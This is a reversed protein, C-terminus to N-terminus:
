EVGIKLTKNKIFGGVIEKVKERVLVSANGFSDKGKESIAVAMSLGSAQIITEEKTVKGCIAICPIGKKKCALAVASVIKGQITQADFSGEGTLVLDAKSLHHFFNSYQFVIDTGKQLNIDPLLMLAAATGGAAGAGPINAIAKNSHKELVSAFQEMGKELLEIEDPTAGKQAAYTRTAGTKGLLPNDVDCAITTSASLPTKPPVIKVILGLSAGCPKIENQQADLFTYGLAALLGMGGDNTASGGLGLVIQEAGNKLAEKVMLGTGYTSTQMPHHHAKKLLAIGSASALEIIATKNLTDWKYSAQIPKGIANVTAMKIPITDLYHSLVEAFGDGGDALPLKIIEITKDAMHVGEAMAECLAFANLSGKYKDPAILITM